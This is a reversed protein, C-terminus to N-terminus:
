KKNAKKITKLSWATFSYDSEFRNGRLIDGNAKHITVHSDSTINQRSNDWVLHETMLVMNNFIDVVVNGSTELRGSIQDLSAKNAAVNSIHEGQENYTDILISDFFAIYQNKFSCTHKYKMTLNVRGNSTVTLVSNWGEHVPYDHATSQIPDDEKIFLM